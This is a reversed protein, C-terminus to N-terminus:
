NSAKNADKIFKFVQFSGAKLSIHMQLLRGEAEHADEISVRGDGACARRTRALVAVRILISVALAKARFLLLALM